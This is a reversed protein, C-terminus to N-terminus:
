LLLNQFFLDSILINFVWIGFTTTFPEKNSVEKGNRMFKYAKAPVEFTDYHHVFVKGKFTGFLKMMFSRTIDSQKILLIENVLNTKNVESLNFEKVEINPNYDWHKSVRTTAM